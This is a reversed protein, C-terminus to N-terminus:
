NSLTRVCRVPRNYDYRESIIGGNSMDIVWYYNYSTGSNGERDSTWYRDGTLGGIQQKHAYIYLLENKTPLRWGTLGGVTSNQCHSIATDHHFSGGSIDTKQVLIGQISCVMYDGKDFCEVDFLILSNGYSVGKENIAYARVYTNATLSFSTIRYEFEGTGTGSIVIKTDNVTPNEFLTSLVFGRETYAPNGKDDIRGRLIATKTDIDINTPELTTVSAYVENTTFSTVSSSYSVGGASKVYARVYYTKNKTLNSVITSYVGSQTGSVSVVTSNELTPTTNLMSYVFGKETYAPDGLADISGSLTAKLTSINVDSVTRVSVTPLVAKMSISQAQSSYFIGDTSKAYARVYYTAGLTLGTITSSFSGLKCEDMKVVSDGITPNTNTSSYVFGNEFIAPNGMAEVSGNLTAQLNVRDIGTVSQVSVVPNTKSLTFSKSTSSYVVGGENRAYARAYYTKGLTLNSIKVDYTGLGSGSVKVYSDSLTPTSRDECYVFGKESYAPDGLQDVSGHLMATKAYADVQDVSLMSVKPASAVTTFSEQNSSYATGVSNIAYARVYYKQGLTLNTLTYSFTNTSNVPVTIRQISAEVTPNSNTSYVFGRETYAPTGAFTIQGSVTASSSKIDSVGTINLTAKAKEKGIAKLLVESSGDGNDSVIVLTSLNEGAKLKDRDIKVVISATKGFATTGSEPSVESIFSLSSKDYEIHWSLNEYSANVINFSLTVLSENDGFNLEEKDATVYAPIREMLIDCQVKSDAKVTVTNSGDNYGKKTVTITYEGAEVGTFSYSGDTGTVATKGTEKLSVKAVPIPEGVSNDYVIGVIDGTTNKDEINKACSFALLAVLSLFIIKKM